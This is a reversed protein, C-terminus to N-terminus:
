LFPCLECVISEFVHSIIENHEKRDKDKGKYM